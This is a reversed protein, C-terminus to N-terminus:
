WQKGPFENEQICNRGEESRWSFRSNMRHLQKPWSGIKMFLYWTWAKLNRSLIGDQIGLWCIMKERNVYKVKNLSLTLVEHHMKELETVIMTDVHITPSIVYIFSSIYESEKLQMSNTLNQLQQLLGRFGRRVDKNSESIFNSNEKQRIEM